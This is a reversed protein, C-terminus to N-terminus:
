TKLAIIKIDTFIFTLNNSILHITIDILKMRLVFTYYM